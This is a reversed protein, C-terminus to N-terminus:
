AHIGVIYLPLMIFMYIFMEGYYKNQFSVFSYLVVIALGFFQGAVKGKALLLATVIGALSTITTILDTKFILFVITIISISGILLFKEFLTWEKLIKLFKM